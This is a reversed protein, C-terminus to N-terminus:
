TIRRLKPAKFRLAQNRPDANDLLGRAALQFQEQGRGQQLFGWGHVQNWFEHPIIEDAIPLICITFPTVHSSDCDVEATHQSLEAVVRALRFNM